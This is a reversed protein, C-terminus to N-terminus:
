YLKQIFLRVQQLKLSVLMINKNTIYNVVNKDAM